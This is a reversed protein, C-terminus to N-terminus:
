ISKKPAKRVRKQKPSAITNETPAIPTALEVLIQAAAAVTEPAAATATDSKKEPKAAALVEARLKQSMERLMQLQKRARPAASKKGSMLSAIETAYADLHQQLALPSAALSM